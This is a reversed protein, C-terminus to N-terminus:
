KDQNLKKVIDKATNLYVPYQQLNPMQFQTKSKIAKAMPSLISKAIELNSNSTENELFIILLQGFESDLLRGLIIEGEETQINSMQLFELLVIGAESISSIPQQSEPFLLNEHIM